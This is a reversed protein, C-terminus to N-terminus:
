HPYEADHGLDCVLEEKSAVLFNMTRASLRLITKIIMIM